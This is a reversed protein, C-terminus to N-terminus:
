PPLLAASNRLRPIKLVRQMPRNPVGNLIKSAAASSQPRVAKTKLTLFRCAGHGGLPNEPGIRRLGNNQSVQSATMAAIM